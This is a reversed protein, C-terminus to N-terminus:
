LRLAKKTAPSIAEQPVLVSLAKGQRHVNNEAKKPYTNRVTYLESLEIPKGTLRIIESELFSTTSFSWCTGTIGQSIVPTCNIEKVTQFEYAQSFSNTTGFILLFSLLIKKM